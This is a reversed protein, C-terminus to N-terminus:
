KDISGSMEEDWKSREYAGVLYMSGFSILMIGAGGLAGVWGRQAGAAASVFVFMILFGTGPHEGCRPLTGCGRVIHRFFSIKPADM